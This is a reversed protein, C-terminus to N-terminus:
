IGGTVSANVVGKFTRVTVTGHKGVENELGAAVRQTGGNSVVRPVSVRHLVLEVNGVHTAISLTGASPLGGVLMVRGGVTEIEARLETNLEAETTIGTLTVNGSISSVELRGRVGGLGITGAGGRIRIVGDARALAIAGDISEVTVVGRLDSLTTAGGVQLVDLVGRVGQVNVTATTSKIWVKAGRPVRVRMTASALVSDGRTTELAFKTAARTGGGSMSTGAVPTVRVDISDLDWGQVEVFGAPVWLRIAVDHDVAMGRVLRQQAGLPTTILLATCLLLRASM